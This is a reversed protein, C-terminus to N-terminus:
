HHFGTRPSEAMVEPQRELRKITRRLDEVLTKGLDRSM